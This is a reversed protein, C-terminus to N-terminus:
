LFYMVTNMLITLDELSNSESTVFCAQQQVCRLCDASSSTKSYKFLLALAHSKSITTGGNDVSIARSFTHGEAPWELDVAADELMCLGDGTLPMSAEEPTIAEPNLGHLTNSQPLEETDATPLATYVLLTGFPALMTSNPNSEVSHLVESAFPHNEELRCWGQMWVTPPTVSHLSQSARWSRPTIHDACDPIVSMDHTLSPLHLRRPAKDWESHLALINAAEVTGTLRTGLQYNDVNADNGIITCLCGFLSELHDTGLLVLNFDEDPTDVKAKAVCFFVNKIMLMIDIYLATPLFDGCANDHVYLTLALHGAYSLHELQDEISMDVCIYPVLLHYCLSGFLRLAKRAQIRGPPGCTLAPLSWIDRLLGYALTVDQKDNPNLASRIHDSKYGAELLHAHLVPPTIWTGYVLIGRERLLANCVRKAATHKYDKDCILDDEGVHLDLLACSSLWSYIPSSPPLTHKFTLQM